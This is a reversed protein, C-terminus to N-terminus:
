DAKWIVAHPRSRILRASKNLFLFEDTAKRCGSWDNYDDLVIFGGRTLRRWTFNLCYSVSEYWDCDIHALAISVGGHLPLTDYFLGKILLVNRGNVECGFSRFNSKAVDYLNDVYGYYQDGGIGSSKRSVITNYRDAVDRGDAVSPPPIMGFVDFGLYRRGDDMAKALCIGSGGLAVGFEIFDGQTESRQLDDICDYLSDFKEPGLYTLRKRRVEGAISRDVM